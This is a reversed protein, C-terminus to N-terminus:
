AARRRRAHYRYSRGQVLCQVRVTRHSFPLKPRLWGPAAMGWPGHARRPTASHENFLSWPNEGADTHMNM